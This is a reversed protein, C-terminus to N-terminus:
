SRNIKEIEALQSNIYAKKEQEEYQQLKQMRPDNALRKELMPEIIKEVDEPNFGAETIFKKTKLRKCKMM